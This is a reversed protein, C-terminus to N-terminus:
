DDTRTADPIAQAQEATMGHAISSPPRARPTHVVLSQELFVEPAQGADSQKVSAIWVAEPHVDEGARVDEATRLKAVDHIITSFGVKVVVDAICLVVQIVTMWEGGFGVVQILAVIPYIVWGCLLLITANRLLRGAEGTLHPISARVARVLVINTLIWFVSSVGFWALTTTPNSGGDVVVAGLFGAFIMGFALGFATFM